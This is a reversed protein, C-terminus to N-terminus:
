GSGDDIMQLEDHEDRRWLYGDAEYAGDLKRLRTTRVEAGDARRRLIVKMEYWDEDPLGHAIEALGDIKVDTM